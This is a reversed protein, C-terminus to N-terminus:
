RKIFDKKVITLNSLQLNKNKTGDIDIKKIFMQPASNLPNFNNIQVNEILSLINLLDNYNIEVPDVQQLETEIIEDNSSLVTEKLKLQNKGEKLSNYRIILNQTEKHLDNQLINELASIEENLFILKEIHNKLFLPDSDSLKELLKKRSARSEATKLAKTNLEDLTIQKTELEKMKFHANIGLLIIPLVMLAIFVRFKISSIGIKGLFLKICDIM